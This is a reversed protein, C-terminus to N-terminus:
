WAHARGDKDDSLSTVGRDKDLPGTYTAGARGLTGGRRKCSVFM